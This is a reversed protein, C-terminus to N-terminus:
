LLTYLTKMDKTLGVSFISFRPISHWTIKILIELFRLTTIITCYIYNHCRKWTQSNLTSITRTMMFCIIKRGIKMKEAIWTLFVFVNGTYILDISIFYSQFWILNNTFLSFIRYKNQYVAWDHLLYKHRWLFLEITRVFHLTDSQKHKNWEICKDRCL